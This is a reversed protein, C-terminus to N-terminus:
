VAPNRFVAGSQLEPPFPEPIRKKKAESVNQRVQAM